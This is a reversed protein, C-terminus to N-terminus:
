QLTANDEEIVQQLYALALTLHVYALESNLIEEGVNNELIQDIIKKIKEKDM